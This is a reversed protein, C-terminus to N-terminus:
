LFKQAFIIRKRGSFTNKTELSGFIEGFANNKQYVGFL